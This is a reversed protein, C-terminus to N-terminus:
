LIGSAEGLLRVLEAAAEAPEGEIMRVPPRAQPSRYEVLQLAPLPEVGLDALSVKPVQARMANMLGMVQPVRPEYLGKEATILVPLPVKVM